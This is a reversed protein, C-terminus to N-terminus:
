PHFRKILEESPGMILYDLIYKPFFLVKKRLPRRRLARKDKKYLAEAFKKARVNFKDGQPKTILLMSFTDERRVKGISDLINNLPDDELQKFM